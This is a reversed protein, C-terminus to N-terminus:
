WKISGGLIRYKKDLAPDIRMECGTPSLEETNTYQQDYTYVLSLVLNRNKTTDKIAGITKKNILNVDVILKTLIQYKVNMVRELIKKPHYTIIQRTLTSLLNSDFEPEFWVDHHSGEELEDIKLYSFDDDGDVLDGILDYEALTPEKEEMEVLIEDKIVIDPFENEQTKERFSSGLRINTVRNVIPEPVLLDDDQGNDILYLLDKSDINDVSFYTNFPRFKMLKSMPIGNIYYDIPCEEQSPIYDTHLLGELTRMIIKNSRDYLVFFGNEHKVVGAHYSISTLYRTIIEFGSIIPSSILKDDIITFSGSKIRRFFVDKNLGTHMIAEIILERLFDLNDVRNVTLIINRNSSEVLLVCNSLQLKLTFDNPDEDSRVVWKHFITHTKSSWATIDDIGGHYLLMLLIKKYSSKPLDTTLFFASIENVDLMNSVDIPNGQILSLAFYDFAFCLKDTIKTSQQTLVKKTEISTMSNYLNQQKLTLYSNDFSRSSPGYIIAKMPKSINTSLRLIILMLSRVQKNRDGSFGDLTEDFTQKILPITDQLNIWDRYYSNPVQDLEEWGWFHKLLITVPNTIKQSFRSLQLSRINQTEMEYRPHYSFELRSLESLGIFDKLHPYLIDLSISKTDMELLKTICEAYTYVGEDMVFPIKFASASVSAAVRGYYISAATTRLAESAGYRYLKMFVKIKLEDMDKPENFILMPNTLIKEELIKWDIGVNERIRTLLKIPGMQAEIRNVGTYVEDVSDMTAYLEPDSVDVLSHMVSFMKREKITMESKNLLINYNHCEPGYMLMLAPDM